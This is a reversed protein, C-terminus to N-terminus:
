RVFGRRVAHIWDTYAPACGARRLVAAIQGRHYAGHLVAHELIDGASGTWAEGQSNVYSVPAALRGPERGYEDLATSWASALRDIQDGLAVLDLDPWVALPSPERCLRAWWLWGTGIVHGLLRVAEAPPATAATAAASATGAAQLSALTERNAWADWAFLRRLRDVTEAGDM